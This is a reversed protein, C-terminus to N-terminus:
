LRMSRFLASTVLIALVLVYALGVGATSLAGVLCFVSAVALWLGFRIEPVDELLEEVPTRRSISMM